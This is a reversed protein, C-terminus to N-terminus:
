KGLLAYHVARRFDNSSGPEHGEPCDYKNTLIVAGINHERSVWLSTGTFGSHGCGEPYVDSRDFGLGRGLVNETMARVFFPKGTTLLFQGLKTLAGTNAFAGAHGAQDGWYYYANGDNSGGRTEVGDPRWGDFTLCREACMGKEIQNGRSGPMCLEPPVPGYSVDTIGLTKHFYKELGERLTLGTVQTFVLGLLMFNLDSYVMGEEPTTTAMLRELIEYFEGGDAYFPYWDLIGSTHTMLQAITTNKLRERTAPGPKGKPLHRLVPDEPTLKGEEMGFLLMTTCLLKSVSALDYWSEPRAGGFARHYLTKESDFIQCVASPYYGRARHDELIQTIKEFDM